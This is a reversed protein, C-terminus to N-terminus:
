FTLSTFLLPKRAPTQQSHLELLKHPLTMGDRLCGALLALVVYVLCDREGSQVPKVHSIM